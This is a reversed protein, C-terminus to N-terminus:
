RAVDKINLYVDWKDVLNNNGLKSSSALTGVVGLATAFDATTALLWVLL